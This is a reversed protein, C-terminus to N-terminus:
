KRAPFRGDRCYSIQYRLSQEEPKDTAIVGPSVSCVKAGRPQHAEDLAMCRTFHDMGAKAACYASQSAMAM